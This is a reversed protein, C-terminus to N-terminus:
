KKAKAVIKKPSGKESDSSPTVSDILMKQYELLTQQLQTNQETVRKIESAQYSFLKELAWIIGWTFFLTIGLSIAVTTGNKDIFNGIGDFIREIVKTVDASSMRGLVYGISGSGITVLGTVTKPNNAVLSGIKTSGNKSKELEKKPVAEGVGVEESM